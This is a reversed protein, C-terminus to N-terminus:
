EEDREDDNERATEKAANRSCHRLWTSIKGEITHKDLLSPHVQKIGDIIVQCMPLMKFALKDENAGAFCYQSGLRYTMLTKMVRGVINNATGGIGCVFIVMKEINSQDKITRNFKSVDATTQLPFNHENITDALNAQPPTMNQLLVTLLSMIDCQNEKLIEVSRIWSDLRPIIKERHAMSTDHQVESKKAYVTTPASQSKEVVNRNNVGILNCASSLQIPVTFLLLTAM